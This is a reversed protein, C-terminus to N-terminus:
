YGVFITSLLNDDKNLQYYVCLRLMIEGIFWPPLFIACVLQQSNMFHGVLSFHGANGSLPRLQQSTAPVRHLPSFCPVASSFLCSQTVRHLNMSPTRPPVMDQGRTFHTLYLSQWFKHRKDSPRIGFVEYPDADRGVWPPCPPGGSRMM